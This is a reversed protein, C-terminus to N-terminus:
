RWLLSLVARGILAQIIIGVAEVGGIYAFTQYVDSPLLNWAVELRHGINLQGYYTDFLTQGIYVLFYKIQYWVYESGVFLYHAFQEGFRYIGEHLWKAVFDLFDYIADIV